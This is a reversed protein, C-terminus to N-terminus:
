GSACGPKSNQLSRRYSAAGEGVSWGDLVAVLERMGGFSRWVDEGASVDGVDFIVRGDSSVVRDPIPPALQYIRSGVWGLVGFSVLLTAALGIWLRRM